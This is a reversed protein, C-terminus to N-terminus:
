FVSSKKSIQRLEKTMIENIKKLSEQSSSLQTVSSYINLFQSNQMLRQKLAKSSVSKKQHCIKMEESMFMQDVYDGIHKLLTNAFNKKLCVSNFQVFEKLLVEDSKLGFESKLAVADLTSISNFQYKSHVFNLM